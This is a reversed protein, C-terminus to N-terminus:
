QVREKKTFISFLFGSGWSFHMVAAAIPIGIIYLLEKKQVAVPISALCMTLFYIILGIGLLYIAISIYFSLLALGISGLVLLPPGVQRWRLTDPYRKLMRWKWFGYRWYQYALKRLDSRAFYVCKIAPDLWIKGGNKRIRANFEYDENSLLTEDFRGVREFTVKSFAGFSVTNVYGAKKTFRYLADGVCLPHATAAAISKAIWNKCSPRIELVGGVNDGKKNILARISREVYDKKPISHADLRIFYKGRAVEAAKNIGAPINRKLNDVVKVKLNPYKNIFKQINERTADTSMADSIVVEMRQLPYTQLYIAELLFGINREENYCPVIISISPLIEQNKVM